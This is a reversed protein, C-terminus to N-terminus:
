DQKNKLQKIAEDVSIEGRELQNLTENSSPASDIEVFGLEAAIRNIRNKITPYSVGFIKEMQKISGHCQLFASVFIQDDNTLKALPPLEFDGEITINKNILRVKEIILSENGSIKILEQWDKLM